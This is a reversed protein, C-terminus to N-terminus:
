GTSSRYLQSALIYDAVTPPVWGALSLGAAARARIATSSIELTPVTLDYDFSYRAMPQTKGEVDAVALGWGGARRCVAIRALVRVGEPDHWERFGRAVDAGMLLVLEAGPQETKLERLTDVTYSPGPRSLERGNASFDPIGALALEVMHVREAATAGHLGQKFPQSGAVTFLVRDLQLQEVALRAVILHANHIPDFSGGLVGIRM